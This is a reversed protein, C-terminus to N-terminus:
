ASAVRRRLEARDVKQMATLPLEDVIEVAEPLKYSALRDAAFTRLEDLTPPVAGARIVLVAVGIEGMVPAERPIVAVDAVSPHSALVAEVEVPYVNYGGRIYMEKQRGALRLLGADDIYGLDGSHLWGHRITDATAAPDRWYGRMMTSSRLCIEGVEGDPVV